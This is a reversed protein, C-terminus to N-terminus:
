LTTLKLRMSTVSAFKVGFCSRIRYVDGFIEKWRRNAMGAESQMLEAQNGPSIKLEVWSSIYSAFRFDMFCCPPMTPAKPFFRSIRTCYVGLPHLACSACPNGLSTAHASVSLAFAEQQKCFVVMAIMYCYILPVLLAGKGAIDSNSVHYHTILVVV